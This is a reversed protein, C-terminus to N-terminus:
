RASAVLAGADRIRAKAHLNGVRDLQWDVVVQQSEAVSRATVCQAMMVPATRNMRIRINADAECAEVSAYHPFTENSQRCVMMSQDCGLLLMVAVITEM